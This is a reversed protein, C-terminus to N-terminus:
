TKLWVLLYESSWLLGNSLNHALVPALLSGTRHYAWSYFLGLAFALVLQPVYLHTVEFAPFSVGIHALTFVAASIWGAWPMEVSRWRTMGIWFLGLFTHFLGRFLIEESLGVFVFGFALRGMINGADLEEVLTRAPLFLLQVVFGIGIFYVGYYYLFRWLIRFSEQYNRFNLGWDQWRGRSLVAIAALACMMQVLHHDFAILWWDDPLDLFSRVALVDTIYQISYYSVLVVLVALVRIILDKRRRWSSDTAEPM